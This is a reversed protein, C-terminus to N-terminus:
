NAETIESNYQLINYCTGQGYVFLLIARARVCARMCVCVCVCVCEFACVHVGDFM